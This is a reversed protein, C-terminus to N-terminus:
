KKVPRQQNVPLEYGALKARNEYAEDAWNLVVYVAINLFIGLLVLVCVEKFTVNM